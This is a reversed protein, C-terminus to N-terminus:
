VCPPSRVSATSRASAPATARRARASMRQEVDALYADVTRLDRVLDHALEKRVQECPSAPRVSRLMTSASKATIALAAGGPVLDRLVAHLQNAVRVRQAALNARREELMAFVTTHDEGAVVAADGHLAAVSAAAAADIVDTKRRSGRSLERVRATATSPCTRCSRTALSWGSRWIAVSDARM